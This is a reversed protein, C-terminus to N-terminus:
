FACHRPRMIGAIMTAGLYPASETTTRSVATRRLLDNIFRACIFIKGAAKAM